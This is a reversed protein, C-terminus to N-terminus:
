TRAAGASPAWSSSVRRRREVWIPGRWAGLADFIEAHQEQCKGQRVVVRMHQPRESPPFRRELLEALHKARGQRQEIFVLRTETQTCTVEPRLAQEMAIVPSSENSNEYEGPGAFGDLFTIGTDHFKKAMIPFWAQLYRRLLVHKAATHPDRPWLTGTPTAM